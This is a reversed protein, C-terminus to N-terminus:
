APRTEWRWPLLDRWRRKRPPPRLLQEIQGRLQQSEEAQLRLREHLGMLDLHQQQVCTEKQELQEHLEMLELHQQQVCAEKQEIQMLLAHFAATLDVRQDEDAREGAADALAGHRLALDEAYHLLALWGAFTEDPPETYVLQAGRYRLPDFALAVDRRSGPALAYGQAQKELSALFDRPDRKLQTYSERYRPGKDNDSHAGMVRYQLSNVVIKSLMQAKSRLPYHALAAVPHLRSAVVMRGRHAEHSGQPLIFNEDAAVAGPILVKWRTAPAVSRHRIRVVPNTENPDDSTQPVYTRWPMMLIENHGVRQPVLSEDDPLSIFEDADLPLVWAARYRGVAYEKILRTMRRSQYKGLTRDVVVELPLREKELLRLVDLTGDSSGNDLVVMRDVFALNHRVMAEIVDAENKITAVAVIPM